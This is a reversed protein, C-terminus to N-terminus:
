ITLQKYIYKSVWKCTTCVLLYIQVNLVCIPSISDRLTRLYYWQYCFSPTQLTSGPKVHTQMCFWVWIESTMHRTDFRVHWIDCTVQWKVSSVQCRERWIEAGLSKRDEHLSTEFTQLFLIFFNFLSLATQLVDGAESPRNFICLFVFYFPTTPKGINDRCEKVLLRLSEHNRDSILAVNKYVCVNRIKSKIPRPTSETFLMSVSHLIIRIKLKTGSQSTHPSFPVTINLTCNCSSVEVSYPDGWTCDNEMCCIM